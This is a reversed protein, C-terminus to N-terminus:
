QRVLRLLIPGRGPQEIKAVYMGPALGNYEALSRSTLYNYGAELSAKQRYITRGTADTISFTLTTATASYCQITFDDSTLLNPFIVPDTGSTQGPTITITTSFATTGDFDLQRLRYYITPVGLKAVNRDTFRYSQPLQTTGAADLTGIREFRRGDTSREIDFLQSNKESATQWALLVDPGSMRGTFFLLEVPLVNDNGVSWESFSTIGTAEAAFPDFNQVLTAPIKSYGSGSNKTFALVGARNFSTGEQEGPGTGIWQLRLTANSGGVTGEDVTWFREIQRAPFPPTYASATGVRVRYTDLTGTNTLTAPNYAAATGVPFLVATTIGTTGLGERALQGVGSTIIYRNADTASITAAPAMTLNDAGLTLKTNAQSLNLGTAIRLPSGLTAGGTTGTRNLTLTGLTTGATFRLTGFDGDGLINLTGSGNDTYGSNAAITGANSAGGATGITLTQGNLNLINPGAGRFEIATGASPAAVTLGSLLNVQGAGKEMVVYNIALASSSQVTQSNNNIFFVARGNSTFTGTNAFNGGLKLDGGGLPNTSLTFTGANTVNGQVVFPDTNTNADVTAGTSVSLNGRLNIPGTSANAVDLNLYTNGTVEVNVPTRALTSGDWESRRDYNAGTNYRLTSNTGYQPGQGATGQVFGNTQIELVGDITTRGGFNAPGISGSGGIIVRATSAVLLTGGTGGDVVSNNARMVLEGTGSSSSVTRLANDVRFNVNNPLTLRNGRLDLNGNLTIGNGGAPAAINVESLLRLGTTSTNNVILYDFNQTGAVPGQVSQMATGDFFVARGKPNFTGGSNRTFNGTLKLDGGGADSLSLTGNITVDGLVTLPQTMDDSGFDMVLGSGADIALSGNCQRATGPASNSLNVWTNNTLQVNAPYGKGSLANWESFRGYPTGATSGTAYILTAGVSYAPANTNVFGGSNLRLSNAITSTVSAGFNVGAGLTVNHFTSNQSGGVTATGFFSVTGTNRNFTSNNLFQGGGGSGFSIVGTGGNLTGNNTLTGSTGFAITGGALSLSAGNAITLSGSNSITLLRNSGDSSTFTGAAVTLSSVTAAQDLTVDHNIQVIAGSAPVGGPNWTAPLSWAGAQVTQRISAVTFNVTFPGSTRDGVNTFARGQIELTYTGDALPTGGPAILNATNGFGEWRQDGPSALNAGFGIAVNVFTGSPVGVPYVRYEMRAGTVNDGGNKFTWIQGGSFNLTESSLFSGLSAPLAAQGDNFGTATQMRYNVNGAGKSNLTVSSAFVGTSARVYSSALLVLCFAALFISQYSHRM